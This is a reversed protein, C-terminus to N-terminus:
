EFPDDDPGRFTTLHEIGQERALRVKERLQVLEEESLLGPILRTSQEIIQKADWGAGCVPCVARRQGEDWPVLVLPEDHQECRLIM